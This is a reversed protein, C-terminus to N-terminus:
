IYEKILALVEDSTGCQLARKALQEMEKQNIDAMLKRIPLISTATMSLEDLGLGLLLPAAMINGAMEGCMGTWKGVSHSADIVMKIMRLLAPNFPQYLYAVKENIRDAAFTYQILHNTGISFFD